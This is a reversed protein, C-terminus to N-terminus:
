LTSHKVFFLQRGLAEQVKQFKYLLVIHLLHVDQVM